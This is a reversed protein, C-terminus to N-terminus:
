QIKRRLDKIDQFLQPLKKILAKERLYDQLPRVPRGAVKEDPKVDNIVSAGGAVMARAGIKVHDTIGAQGAILVYDELECSGAIGVQSVLICNKGIKVNHAIQVLNDVKTGNGLTTRGFKARDVCSNAGIEVNDEVVVIGIHPIKKHRGEVLRYAFGDTGITSNAHIIVNNGIICGHNIVVNPWLHCGTGIRVDRGIICGPRIITDEGVAADPGIVVQAGIAASEAIRATRDVVASAHVGPDPRDQPPGFEQLLIEIAANVDKVPLLLPGDAATPFGDPVIVAAACSEAVRDAYRRDSLFSIDAPGADSLTAISTVEPDAVGRWPADIKEALESLNM